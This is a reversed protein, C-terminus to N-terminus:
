KTPWIPSPSSPTLVRHGTFSRVRLPAAAVRTDIGHERIFVALEALESPSLEDIANKIEALSM